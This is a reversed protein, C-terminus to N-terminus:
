QNEITVQIIQDGVAIKKAVDLGSIVKGFISYDPSFGEFDDTMIFFQSGTSHPASTKAMAIIGAKYDSGSTPPEEAITYGPGGTGNGLPDGGQIIHISSEVRHFFLGDYFKDKALFVFNSVTIPAKDGYLEIEITGKNTVMVAKKGTIEVAPLTGPDKDYKDNKSSDSKISPTPTPMTTNNNLYNPKCGALLISMALLPVVIFTRKM